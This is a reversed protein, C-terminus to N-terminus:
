SHMLLFIQNTTEIGRFFIVEDTPIIIGLIHFFLFHELGGALYIFYKASSGRCPEWGWLAFKCPRIKVSFVRCDDGLQLFDEILNGHWSWANANPMVGHSTVM